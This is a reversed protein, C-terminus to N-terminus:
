DSQVRRSVSAGVKGAYRKSGLVQDPTCLRQAVTQDISHRLLASLFSHADYLYAIIKRTSLDIGAPCLKWHKKPYRSIERLIREIQRAPPFVHLVGPSRHRSQELSNSRCARAREMRVLKIFSVSGPEATAVQVTPGEPFM